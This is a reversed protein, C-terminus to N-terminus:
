ASEIVAENGTKEIGREDKIVREAHSRHGSYLCM